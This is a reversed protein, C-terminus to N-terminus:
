SRFGYFLCYVCFYTEGYQFLIDKRRRDLTANWDYLIDPTTAEDADDAGLVFGSQVSHMTDPRVMLLKKNCVM